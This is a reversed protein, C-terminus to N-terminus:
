HDKRLEAIFADAARKGKTTRCSNYATAVNEIAAARAANVRRKEAAYLLKL